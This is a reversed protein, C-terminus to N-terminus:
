ESTGLRAELEAIRAAFARRPVLWDSLEPRRALARAVEDVAWVLLAGPLDAQGAPLYVRELPIGLLWCTTAFTDETRIELDADMTLDLADIM